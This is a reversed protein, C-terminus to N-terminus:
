FPVIEVVREEVAAFPVLMNTRSQLYAIRYHISVSLDLLRLLCLVIFSIESCLALLCPLRLLGPPLGRSTFAGKGKDKGSLELRQALDIMALLGQLQVQLCIM